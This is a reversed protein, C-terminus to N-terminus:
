HSPPQIKCMYPLKASCSVKVMSGDSGNYAVCEGKGLSTISTAGRSGDGFVLQGRSISKGGSWFLDKGNTKPKLCAKNFAPLIADNLEGKLPSSALTTRWQFKDTGGVYEGQCVAEDWPGCSKLAEAKTLKKPFYIYYMGSWCQWTEQAHKSKSCDSCVPRSFEETWQPYCGALNPEALAASAVGLGAVVLLAVAAKWTMNM